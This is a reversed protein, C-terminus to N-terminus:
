VAKPYIVQEPRFKSRRVMRDTNVNVINNEISVPYIDLARSAPSSIVQGQIDFASAHCPCIFKKEDAHWPLSCGLHTCKRSLAIFGGDKLRALYFKGSVFATVTEPDFRDVPGAIFIKGGNGSQARSKHPKFFSALVVVWEILAIIGLVIWIRSLFSRRSVGPEKTQSNKEPGTAQNTRTKM